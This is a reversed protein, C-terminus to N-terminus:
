GGSSAAARQKRLEIQHAFPTLALMFITRLAPLPRGDAVVQPQGDVGGRTVALPSQTRM